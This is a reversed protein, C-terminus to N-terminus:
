DAERRRTEAASHRQEAGDLLIRAERVTMRWIRWESTFKVAASVMGNIIVQGPLRPQEGYNLMFPTTRISEQWANNVAFEVADLHKDLDNLM